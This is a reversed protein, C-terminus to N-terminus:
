TSAAPPTSVFTSVARPSRALSAAKVPELSGEDSALAPWNQAETETVADTIVAARRLRCRSRPIM